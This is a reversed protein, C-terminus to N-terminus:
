IVACSSLQRLRRDKPLDFVDSTCIFNTESRVAPKITARQPDASAKPRVGALSKLAIGGIVAEDNDDDLILSAPLSENRTTSLLSDPIAGTEWFEGFSEETRLDTSDEPFGASEDPTGTGRAPHILKKPRTPTM